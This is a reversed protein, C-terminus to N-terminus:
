AHPPWSIECTQFCSIRVKLNKTGIECTQFCSIRVKLDKTSISCSNASNTHKNNMYLSCNKHCSSPRFVSEVILYKYWCHAQLHHHQWYIYQIGLLTHIPHLSALITNVHIICKLVVYHHKDPISIWIYMILINMIYVIRIDSVTKITRYFICTNSM